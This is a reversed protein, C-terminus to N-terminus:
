KHILKQIGKRGYHCGIAIGATAALMLFFALIAIGPGWSGFGYWDYEVQGFGNHVFVNTMYVVGYLFMPIVGYLSDKFGMPNFASGFALFRVLGVLPTILHLYLNAGVYMIGFGMTPGLFFIVTLLTLTTAVTGVHLLILYVKSSTEKKHLALMADIPLCILAMIGLLINSETTFYKLLAIGQSALVANPGFYMMLISMTVLGIIVIDLTM